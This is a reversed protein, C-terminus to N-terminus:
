QVRKGHRVLGTLKIAKAPPVEVVAKGRRRAHEQKREKAAAEEPTLTLRAYREGGREFIEEM